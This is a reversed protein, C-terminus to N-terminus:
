QITDIYFEGRILSSFFGCTLNRKMLWLKLNPTMEVDDESTTKEPCCNFAKPRAGVFVLNAYHNPQNSGAKDLISKVKAYMRKREKGGSFESVEVTVKSL